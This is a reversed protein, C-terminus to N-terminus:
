CNRLLDVTCVRLHDGRECGSPPIPQLGQLSNANQNQFLIQGVLAVLAARLQM